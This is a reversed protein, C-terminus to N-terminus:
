TIAARQVTERKTALTLPLLYQITDPSCLSLKEVSVVYDDM